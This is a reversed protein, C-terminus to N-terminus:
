NEKLMLESTICSYDDLDLDASFPIELVISDYDTYQAPNHHAVNVVAAVLLQAKNWVLCYYTVNFVAVRLLLNMWTSFFDLGYDTHCLLLAHRTLYVQEHM